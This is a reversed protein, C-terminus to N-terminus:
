LKSKRQRAITMDTLPTKQSKKIFSHLLLKNSAVVTFIVTAITNGLDVRVEWLGAELKRVVPMGMPWGIQVAKIDIGIL